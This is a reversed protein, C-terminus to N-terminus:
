AREVREINEMAVWDSSDGELVFRQPIPCIMGAMEVDLYEVATIVTERRGGDLTHITVPVDIIPTLDLDWQIPNKDIAM